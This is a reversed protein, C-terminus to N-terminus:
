TAYETFEDGYSMSSMTASLCAPMQNTCNDNLWEVIGLMAFKVNQPVATLAGYGAVFRVVVANAERRTSPWSEGYALEIYGPEESTVVDYKSSALTQSEGSTDSYTVSTVSQLPAKPILLQRCGIPFRTLKLEWTATIVQRNTRDEFIQRAATILRDFYPDQSTDTKDRQEKAWLHDKVEILTLPENTPATILATGYSM